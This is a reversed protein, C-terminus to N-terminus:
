PFISRDGRAIAARIEDGIAAAKDYAAQDGKFRRQRVYEARSAYCAGLARCQTRMEEDLDCYDGDVCTGLRSGALLVPAEAAAYTNGNFRYTKGM